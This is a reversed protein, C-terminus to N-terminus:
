DRNVVFAKTRVKDKEGFFSILYMGNALGDLLISGTGVGPLLKGEKIFVGNASSIRWYLFGGIPLKINLFDSAPNPYVLVDPAVARVPQSHRNTVSSEEPTTFEFDAKPGLTATCPYSDLGGGPAIQVYYKTGPALTTLVAENDGGWDPSLVEMEVPQVLEGSGNKAISYRVQYLNMPDVEVNNVFRRSADWGIVASTPYLDKVTPNQVATRMEDNPSNGLPDCLDPAPRTCFLIRGISIGTEPLGEVTIRVEEVRELNIAANAIRYWFSVYGVSPPHTVDNFDIPPMKIFRDCCDMRFEFTVRGSGSRYFLNIADIFKTGYLNVSFQLVQGMGVNIGSGDTQSYALPKNALEQCLDGTTPPIIADYLDQVGFSSLPPQSQTIHINNPLIHQFCAPCNSGAPVIAYQHHEMLFQPQMDTPAYTYYNGNLGGNKGKGFPIVWFIYCKTADPIDVVAEKRGGPLKDILLHARMPNFETPSQGCIVEEIYIKYFSYPLTQNSTVQVQVLPLDWQLKVTKCGLCSSHLNDVPNVIPDSESNPQNVRLYLPTETLTIHGDSPRIANIQWYENTNITVAEILSPDIKTRRGDEDFEVVEIAQITPFKTEDAAKPILISGSIQNDIGNPIWIALNPTSTGYTYMRPYDVDQILGSSSNLFRYGNLANTRDFATYDLVSKMTLIHYWAKKQVGDTGLIGTHGFQGNGLAPDDNLEYIFVRDIGRAGFRAASAEMIYRSLWQGQITQQDFSGFPVIDVGSQAADGGSDYGFETIWTPSNPFLPGPEDGPDAGFPNPDARDALLRGIRNRLQINQSEPFIGDNTGGDFFRRGRYFELFNGNTKNDIPHHRTTYFHYNVVDFPYNGTGRHADWWTRMYHLWDYRLDATGALVVTTNPSMNRIGWFRGTGIGNQDRIEFDPDNQNGDWVASMLAAYQDPRYYYRTPHDPDTEMDAGTVNLPLPNDGGHWAADPENFVEMQRVLGLGLHHNDPQEVFQGMINEFWVNPAPGYRAAFLSARMAVPLWSGPLAQTNADGFNAPCIPKGFLEPANAGIWPAGQGVTPLNPQTGTINLNFFEVPEQQTDDYTVITETACEQGALITVQHEPLTTCFRFDGLNQFNDCPVSNMATGDTTSFGVTVNQPIASTLCVQPYIGTGEKGFSAKIYATPPQNPSEDDVILVFFDMKSFLVPENAGVPSVQFHIVKLGDAVNDDLLQIPFNVSTQGAPITVTSSTPQVFDAATATTGIQTNVFCNLHIEGVARFTLQFPIELMANAETARIEGLMLGPNGSNGYMQPANGHLVAVTRNPNIKYFDDYRIYRNQNRSPNWRIRPDNPDDFPCNPQGGGTPDGQDEAWLHFARGFGIRKTKESPLRAKCYSGIFDRMLPAQAQATLALIFALIPLSLLQKVHFRNQHVSVVKACLQYFCPVFMRSIIKEEAVNIIRDFM